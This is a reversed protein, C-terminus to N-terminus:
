MVLPYLEMKEWTLAKRGPGSPPWAGPFAAWQGVPPKFSVTFAPFPPPPTHKLKFDKTTKLHNLWTGEPLSVCSHCFDGNKIPLDM